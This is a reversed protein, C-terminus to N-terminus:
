VKLLQERYFGGQILQGDSDRLIYIRNPVGDKIHDVTFPEERWYGTYGKEYINLGKSILVTDGEEVTEYQKTRQKDTVEFQRKYLKKENSKNVDVPRCGITRHRSHNYNNVIVSLQDIYKYRKGRDSQRSTMLRFLREKLTRQFREVVAAKHDGQLTFHHIRNQKFWEQV